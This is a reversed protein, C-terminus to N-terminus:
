DDLGYGWGEFKDINKPNFQKEILENFVCELLKKINNYYKLDDKYLRKTSLSYTDDEIYDEDYDKILNKDHITILVPLVLAHRSPCYYVDNM